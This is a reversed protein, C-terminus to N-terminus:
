IGPVRPSIAREQSSRALAEESVRPARELLAVLTPAPRTPRGAPNMFAHDTSGYALLEAGELRVVRYGFRISARRLELVGTEIGLLDDYRAPRLYRCQAEIVPLSVGSEEVERYSWGLTRILEARGTEFWRLYHAYYAFGMRDTDAYRVRVAFRHLGAETFPSESM